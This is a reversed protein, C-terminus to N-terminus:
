VQVKAEKFIGVKEQFIGILRDILDEWVFNENFRELSNMKKVQLQQDSLEIAEEFARKLAKESGASILWGNQHDVMKSVAGVNTAMVALGQSMAEMIVTPMGESYSASILIDSINLIEKIKDVDNIQGYYTFNEHSIQEAKEIPGIFHFKFEKKEKILSRAVASLEKM